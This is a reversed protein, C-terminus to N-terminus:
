TRHGVSRDALNGQSGVDFHSRRTMALAITQGTDPCTAVSTVKAIAKEGAFIETGPELRAQTEFRWRALRKQVQGLADLRAVTEQGLYCGKTFSIATANRDFEQPLNEESGDRGFWPWGALVREAEFDRHDTRANWGSETLRQLLTSVAARQVLCLWSTQRTWNVQIAIMPVDWWVSPQMTLEPSTLLTANVSVAFSEASAGFVGIGSWMNSEDVFQADETIVYRDMHTILRDAQGPVGVILYSEGANYIFGHGLAKGKVNTFFAERGTGVGLGKVEQTCLNHLIKQRDKGTVRLITLENFRDYALM